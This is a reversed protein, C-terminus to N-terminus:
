GKSLTGHFCPFTGHENIGFLPTRMFGQIGTGHSKNLKTGQGAGFLQKVLAMSAENEPPNQVGPWAKKTEKLSFKM